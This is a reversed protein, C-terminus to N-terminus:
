EVIVPKEGKEGKIDYQLTDAPVYFTVNEFRVNRSDDINIHNDTAQVTMNRLTIGGVDNLTKFIRNTRVTGNEIVVGTLPIEPIANASMMRDASEIVFNSICIDKVTPTLPTVALPPNRQALDGMYTRTGLLDWTFAENMDILRVNDYTINWIGGGRNRRTKFRFGTRTGNFVCHHLYVNQIGAATESGCTIGGHGKEALCYRIVVNETTKGVRLGDEARGSKLTFCDDGCNLTSYEILVNKCSSIDIGDGSPVGYSNVTIGRIIVNECYIPNVNWLLSREFTVGEVLVNKCNIPAFSKPRYFTRGDKGDCLRQGVPIRYDIDKEVVSNGNKFRRMAVDMPPGLVIGKGTLAINKAGNAYIFAGAGMVEVGEHRTFVAPQYDDVDASFELTCGEALHLEVNSKLEVRGTLWHGAPITLRGGGHRSLSLIKQNIAATVMGRGDADSPQIYETASKFVPRKPKKMKFPVGQIPAIEVPMASAGVEKLKVIGSASLLSSVSKGCEGARCCQVNGDGGMASTAAFPIASVLAVSLSLLTKRNSTM